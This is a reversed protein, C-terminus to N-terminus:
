DLNKPMFEIRRLSSSKPKRGENKRDVYEYLIIDM